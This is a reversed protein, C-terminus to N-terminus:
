KRKLSRLGALFQEYSTDMALPVTVEALPKAKENGFLTFSPVNSSIVSSATVVAGEGISLTRGVAATVVCNAGLFANKGVIIRGSGRTHAILTSRLCVQAGDCLEICEPYENELYVDDGIFVTGHIQVGRLKHLFPRLTTAGPFFRALIGLFRNCARRISSKKKKV